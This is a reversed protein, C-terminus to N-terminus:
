PHSSPVDVFRQAFSFARHVGNQDKISAGNYLVKPQMSDSDFYISPRERRSLVLPKPGSTSVNVSIAVASSETPYTWTTGDRSHAMYSVAGQHDLMHLYGKSCQWLFPDECGSCSLNAVAVFPGEVSDATGFGITEGHPSNFRFTMWVKGHAAPPTGAKPYFLSPNSVHLSGEGQVSLSAVTWPGKMQSATAVYMNTGHEPDGGHFCNTQGPRECIHLYASRLLAPDSQSSNGICVPQPDVANVRFILVFTGSPSRILQPNFSTPPSVVGEVRWPGTPQTSSMHVLMSAYGGRALVGTFETCSRVPSPDACGCSVDTIAHYLGDATDHVVTFGWASVNGVTREPWQWGDNLSAVPVLDLQACSEGKFGIDCKCKGSTCTGLLSCDDDSQCHATITHIGCLLAALKLVFM